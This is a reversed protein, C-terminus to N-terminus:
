RSRDSRNRRPEAFYSAAHAESVVGPSQRDLAFEDVFVNGYLEGNKESLDEPVSFLPVSVRELYALMREVDERDPGREFRLGEKGLDIDGTLEVEKVRDDAM